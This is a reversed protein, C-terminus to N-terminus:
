RGEEFRDYEKLMRIFNRIEGRSAIMTGPQIYYNKHIITGQKAPSPTVATAPIAAGANGAFNAGLGGSVNEIARELYPIGKTISDAYTKILNTGWKDINRLPGVMPASKSKWEEYKKNIDDIVKYLWQKADEMGKKLNDVLNYGWWYSDDSIDLKDKIDKETDELTKNLGWTNKLGKIFNQIANTGTKETEETGKQLG